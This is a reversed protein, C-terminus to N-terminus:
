DAVRRASPAWTPWWTWRGGRRRGRGAAPVQEVSPSWTTAPGRRPAARRDFEVVPVEDDARDLTSSPAVSSTWAPTPGPHARRGPADNRRTSRTARRFARARRRATPRLAPLRAPRVGAAGIARDVAAARRRPRVARGDRRACPPRHPRTRAAPAPPLARRQQRHSSRRDSAPRRAASHDGPDTAEARRRGRRHREAILARRQGAQSHRRRPGSACPTLAARAAPGADADLELGAARGSRAGPQAAASKQGSHSRAAPIRM